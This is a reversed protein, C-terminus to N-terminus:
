ALKFIYGANPDITDNPSVFNGGVILMVGQSSMFGHDIAWASNEEPHNEMAQAWTEGEVYYITATAHGGIEISLLGGKKAVEVKRFKYGDKAKVKVESGMKVGELKGETVTAATGGVTVTAKTAKGAEITNDNAAKFTIDFKNSLM